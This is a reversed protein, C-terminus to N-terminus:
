NTILFLNITRDSKATGSALVGKETLLQLSVFSIFFDNFYLVHDSPIHLQWITSLVM